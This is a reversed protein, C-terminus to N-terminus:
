LPQADDDVRVIDSEIQGTLVLRWMFANREMTFVPVTAARTCSPLAKIYDMALRTLAFECYGLLSRARMFTTVEYYAYSWWSAGGFLLSDQVRSDRFVVPFWETFTRRVCEAAVEHLAAAVVDESEKRLAIEEPTARYDLCGDLVEKDIAM